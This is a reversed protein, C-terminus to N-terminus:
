PGGDSTNFFVQFAAWDALDLDGDADFDLSQCFAGGNPGTLVGCLLTHDSLDVDGDGDLDGYVECGDDLGNNNCDMSPDPSDLMLDYVARNGHQGYVRVFYLDGATLALVITENDTTTVGSALLSGTSDHLSMNLDGVAQLYSLTMTLRGGMCPEFSFWDEDDVTHITLAQISVDGITGLRTATLSTDNEEMDDPPYTPGYVIFGYGNCAGTETYVRAAYTEGAAMLWEITEFDNSSNSVALFGGAGDHLSMDLDGGHQHFWIMVTVLGDDAPIFTFWDDDGPADTNLGLVNLNGLLGFHTAADLTDDEEYQDPAPCPDGGAASRLTEIGEGATGGVREDGQPSRRIPADHPVPPATSALSLTGGLALWLFVVSCRRV